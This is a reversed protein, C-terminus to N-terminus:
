MEGDLIEKVKEITLDPDSCYLCYLSELEEKQVVYLYPDATELDCLRELMAEIVM